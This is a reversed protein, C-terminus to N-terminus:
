GYVVVDVVATVSAHEAVHLQDVVQIGGVHRQQADAVEVRHSRLLSGVGHVVNSMSALTVRLQQGVHLDGDGHVVLRETKQRSSGGLESLQNRAFVALHVLENRSLLENQLSSTKHQAMM